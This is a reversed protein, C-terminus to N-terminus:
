TFLSLPTTSRINTLKEDEFKKFLSHVCVLVYARYFILCGATIAMPKYPLRRKLATIPGITVVPTNEDEYYDDGDDEIVPVTLKLVCYLTLFIFM